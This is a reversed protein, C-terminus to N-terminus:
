SPAGSGVAVGGQTRQGSSGQGGDSQSGLGACDQPQRPGARAADLDGDTSGPQAHEEETNKGQAARLGEAAEELLALRKATKDWAPWLAARAPAGGDYGLVEPLSRTLGLSMNGILELHKLVRNELESLAPNRPGTRAAELVKLFREPDQAIRRKTAVSAARYHGCLAQIQRETLELTCVREVLRRGEPDHPPPSAGRLTAAAPAGGRGATIAEALCEPLGEVLGLRRSAWSKSRGLEAATKGLDWGGVRHLEYVLWGDEIANYGHRNAVRYAAALAQSASTEWVLAKVTDRRLRRLARVRKHGDVIVYRGEAEGVVIIADQQGQEDLLGMLQAERRRDAVRLRGYREDLDALNIDRQEMVAMTGCESEHISLNRNQPCSAENERRLVRENNRNQPCVGGDDDRAFGGATTVGCM